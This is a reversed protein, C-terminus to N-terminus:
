YLYSSSSSGYGSGVFPLGQGRVNQPEVAVGRSLLLGNATTVQVTEGFSRLNQPEVRFGSHNLGSEGINGYQYSGLRSPNALRSGPVEYPPVNGRFVAPEGYNPLTERDGMRLYRDVLLNVNNNNASHSPASPSYYIHPSKNEIAMIRMGPNDFAAPYITSSSVNVNNHQHHLLPPGSSVNVNNHQHHLLPPGSLRLRKLEQSELYATRENEKARRKIIPMKSIKKDTDSIEKALSAITAKIEWSPLVESQDINHDELLKAVSNLDSLHKINAQNLVELSINETYKTSKWRIESEQLFSLLITQPFRDEIGFRYALDMAEVEMRNKLLGEIIGPIRKALVASKRLLDDMERTKIAKILGRIDDNKFTKPLGFCCILLLLGRADLECAKSVGGEKNLRDRWTIAAEHALARSDSDIQDDNYEMRLFCELAFISAQRSPVMKSNETFARISQIYFGGLCDLVMKAPSSALRLAVPIEEVLKPIDELNAVIYRRLARGSMTKCLHEVETLSPSLKNDTVQLSDDDCSSEVKILLPGKNSDPAKEHKALRGVSKLKKFPKSKSPSVIQTFSSQSLKSDIFNRIFDLHEHLEDYQILFGSLSAFVNRLQTISNIGNPKSQDNSPEQGPNYSISQVSRGTHNMSSKLPLHRDSSASSPHSVPNTEDTAAPPPPNAM